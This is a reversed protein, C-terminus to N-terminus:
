RLLLEYITAFNKRFEQFDLPEFMRPKYPKLLSDIDDFDNPELAFRVYIVRCHCDREPMLPPVSSGKPFKSRVAVVISVHEAGDSEQEGDEIRARLVDRFFRGRDAKGSLADVSVTNSNKAIETVSDDLIERTVDKLDRRDFVFSRNTLDVGILKASGHVVNLRSFASLLNTLNNQFLYLRYDSDLSQEPPSLITIVSLHLKGAKDIVFSPPPDPSVGVNRATLNPARLLNTIDSISGGRFISPMRPSRNRDEPKVTEVFEFRPFSRFSQELADGENGPVTLDEYRTSYRGTARDLVALELKYKGPRVIAIETWNAGPGFSQPYLYLSSDIPAVSEISTIPTAGDLVRAFLVLDHTDGSKKLYLPSISVGIQLEQRLDSRYSAKGVSVRWPIQTVEEHQAWLSLPFNESVSKSSTQSAALAASLLSAAIFLFRLKM